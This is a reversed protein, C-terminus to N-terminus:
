TCESSNAQGQCVCNSWTVTISTMDMIITGGVLKGNKMELSGNKLAVNGDHSGTVKEAHWNLSSKSAMVNYKGSQAFSFSMVTALTLTSIITKM